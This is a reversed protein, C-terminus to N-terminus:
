KSVKKKAAAKKKVEPKPRFSVFRIKEGLRLKLGAATVGSIKYGGSKLTAVEGLAARFNGNTSSIIFIESKFPKESIEVIEGITSEKIARINDVEAILVPGPEFIGVLGAPRFGEQELIRKAPETNPHVKGIVFQADEPLLNAIIPHKPMLEEIFRKNKMSLYDATPFDIKFFNAGVADWFPSHGSDNVMGRMEAIVQEEFFKRNEAMFLFRSLSLFRGNQSNRFEPHLYLSCIEAPGNHIFHFHLSTIDNKVNIAKSEHHAKELRYFYYPEFGGIKSIIACVGVIRGTFLEEMVFLYDEGGPGDERHIFSRESMRIRKKLVEADKPLTTLGHGSNELLEMLGSLDKQDIPRIIFM